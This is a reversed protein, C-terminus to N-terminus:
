RGLKAVFSRKFHGFCLFDNDSHQYEAKEGNSNDGQRPIPETFSDLRGIVRNGFTREIAATITLHVSVSLAQTGVAWEITTPVPRPCAATQSRTGSKPVAEPLAHVLLGFPVLRDTRQYRGGELWPTVL